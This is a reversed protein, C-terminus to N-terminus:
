QIKDKIDELDKKTYFAQDRLRILGKHWLDKELVDMELWYHNIAEQILEWDDISIEIERLIATGNKFQLNVKNAKM